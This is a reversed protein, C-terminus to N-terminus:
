PRTAQRFRRVSIWVLGLSATVLATPGPEPVPAFGIDRFSELTTQSLYTPSNLWGTMLEGSLDRGTGTQTIGTPSGGDVEDWHGNATGAGGGLEVPVFAAGPQNFETQWSAVAHAGTFQGTGSSYLGNAIWLTGFGLVHAMEHFVVDYLTGATELQALDAADFQMAGALAILYGGQSDVLTPGASGLVGGPGDIVVARAGITPSPRSGAALVTPQYDQLLNQWTDRASEFVTQQSTTLDAFELNITLATSGDSPRPVYSIGGGSLTGIGGDPALTNLLTVAPAASPASVAAAVALAVLLPAARRPSFRTIAPRPPCPAAPPSARNAQVTRRGPESASAPSM